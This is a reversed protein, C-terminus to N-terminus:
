AGCLQRPPRTQDLSGEGGDLTDGASLARWSLFRRRRCRRQCHRRGRAAPLLHQIGPAAITDNGATGGPSDDASAVGNVTITVTETNGNALKYTFQDTASNNAAGTGPATLGGFRGNPDYIYSGDGNLTLKAGSPLPSRRGSMRLRAMSRSSWFRRGDVDSDAGSGNDGFV